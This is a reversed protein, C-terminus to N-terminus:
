MQEGNMQNLVNPAPAPVERCKKPNLTSCIIFSLLDFDQPPPLFVCKLGVAETSTGLQFVPDSRSGHSTIFIVQPLSIFIVRYMFIWVDPPHPLTM